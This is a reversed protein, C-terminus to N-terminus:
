KGESGGQKEDEDMYWWIFYVCDKKPNTWLNGGHPLSSGRKFTDGQMHYPM